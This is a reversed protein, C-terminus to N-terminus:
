VVSKRDLAALPHDGSRRLLSGLVHRAQSFEDGHAGEPRDDVAAETEALHDGGVGIDVGAALAAADDHAHIRSRPPATPGEGKLFRSGAACFTVTQWALQTHGWDDPNEVTM